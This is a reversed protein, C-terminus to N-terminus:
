DKRNTLRQNLEWLAVKNSDWKLIKMADEYSFWQYTTHEESIIIEKKNLRVGFSIEKVIYVDSQWLEHCDFVTAPISAVSDLRIFESDNPIRAEEFSERIAAELMKENDEVGGAIGQWFEGDRRRFLAYKIINNKNALFPFVLINFPQRM